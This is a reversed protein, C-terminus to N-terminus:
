AHHAEVEDLFRQFYRRAVLHEAAARSDGADLAAIAADLAADARAEIEAQLAPLGAPGADELRERLDIMELLFTQTPHPAGHQPDSSDLDVGALKVLAEARLVPDRLSRYAANIRSAQEVARRRDALSEGVVNDPHAAKSLELYRSEVLDRAVAHRRPLDFLEFPDIDAQM